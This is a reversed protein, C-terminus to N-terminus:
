QTQANLLICGTGTLTLPPPPPPPPPIIAKEFKTKEQPTLETDNLSTVFDNCKEQFTTKLGADNIVAKLAEDNVSSLFEGYGHDTDFDLDEGMSTCMDIYKEFIANAMQAQLKRLLSSVALRKETPLNGIERDLKVYADKMFASCPVGDNVPLVTTSGDNIKVFFKDSKWEFTVKTPMNSDEQNRDNM